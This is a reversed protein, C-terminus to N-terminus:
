KPVVAMDQVFSAFGPQGQSKVIEQFAGWVDVIFCFSYSLKGRPDAYHVTRTVLDSHHSVTYIHANSNTQSM